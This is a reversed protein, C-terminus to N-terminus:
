LDDSDSDSDSGSDSVFVNTKPMPSEARPPRGQSQKRRRTIRTKRKPIPPLGAEIMAESILKEAAVWDNFQAYLPGNEGGDQEAVIDIAKEISGATMGLEDQRVSIGSKEAAQKLLPLTKLLENLVVFQAVKTLHRQHKPGEGRPSSSSEDEDTDSTEEDKTQIRFRKLSDERILDLLEDFPMKGHHTSLVRVKRLRQQILSASPLETLLRKSEEQAATVALMMAVAAHGSAEAESNNERDVQTELRFKLRDLALDLKKLLAQHSQQVKTKLKTAMVKYDIDARDDYGEERILEVVDLVMLLGNEGRGLKPFGSLTSISTPTSTPTSTSAEDIGDDSSVKDRLTKGRKSSKSALLAAIATGARTHRMEGMTLRPLLTMNYRMRCQHRTRTGGMLESIVTWSNEADLVTKKGQMIALDHVIDVLAEDEDADWAGSNMTKKDKVFNRYRDRCSEGPRDLKRGIIAWQNKHQAHLKVLQDDDEKSWAKGKNTTQFMRRARQYINILPRTELRVALQFPRPFLSFSFFLNLVLLARRAVLLHSISTGMEIWLQKLEDKDTRRQSDSENFWREAVDEPQNHRAAYERVTQRILSDEM